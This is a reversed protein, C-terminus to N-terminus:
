VQALHQATSKVDRESWGLRGIRLAYIRVIISNRIKELIRVAVADVIERFPCQPLL